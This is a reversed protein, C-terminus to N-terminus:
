ILIDLINFVDFNKKDFILILVIIVDIVIERLKM